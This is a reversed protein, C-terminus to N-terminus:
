NRSTEKFFRVETKGIRDRNSIDICESSQDIMILNLNKILTALRTDKTLLPLKLYINYKLGTGINVPSTTLYGFHDDHAFDVNEDKM